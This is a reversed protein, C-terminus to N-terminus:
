SWWLSEPLTNLNECGGTRVVVMDEVRIGGISRCYLAPEITLVDGPLLVDDETTAREDLLPPEHVELGIGHGTGHPYFILDDSQKGKADDPPLGIHYGHKKFVAVAAHHVEAGTVGAKCVSIAAAKAQVVAEHMEALTDSITGRCLTRTCDGNYHTKIDQPFVDIIIPQDPRIAGTGPEHCDSGVSGCATICEHPSILGDELLNVTIMTRLRSSTLTYKGFALTGDKQIRSERITEAAFRIASETCKQANRLHKIETETKQRRERIGLQPDCEVTIGAKQLHDAVILPLMQDSIVKTIKRRRCLEVAAQAFAINRNPSLPENEPVLDEPCHVEGIRGTQAIRQMEINRVIATPNDKHDDLFIVMDSVALGIRHYVNPFRGPDGALLVPPKPQRNSKGAM